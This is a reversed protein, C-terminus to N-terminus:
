VYTALTQELHKTWKELRVNCTHENSHQIHKVCINCTNKPHQTYKVIAELNNEPTKALTKSVHKMQREFTHQLHQMQINWFYISHQMKRRAKHQRAETDGGGGPV